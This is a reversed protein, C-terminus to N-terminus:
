KFKLDKVERIYKQDWEEKLTWIAELNKIEKDVYDLDAPNVVSIDFLKFGFIMDNWRNRLTQVSENYDNLLSFAQQNTYSSGLPANIEFDNKLDM